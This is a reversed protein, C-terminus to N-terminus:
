PYTKKVKRYIKSVQGSSEYPPLKPNRTYLGSVTGTSTYKGAKIAADSFRQGHKLNWPRGSTKMWIRQTPRYGIYQLFDQLTLVRVGQERAEAVMAKRAAAIKEIIVNDISAGATKSASADPIDGVVLFKTNVSIGDGTRNGNDDVENDIIAQNQALLEHLRDRDSFGDHDLDILGVLSIALKGGASWAPSYIPDGASIPRGIDENIISAVSLNEDLIETVEIAGKVEETGRAMGRNKKLYVSFRTQPTLGAGHGINIWVLNNDYDTRIIKGDPKEFSLDELEALRDQLQNITNTMTRRSSEWEQEKREAVERYQDFESQLIRMSEALQDAQKQLNDKEERTRDQYEQLDRQAKTKADSEVQIREQANKENTNMAEITQDLQRQLQDARRKENDLKDKQSTITNTVTTSAQEGAVNEIQSNLKTVVSEVDNDQIGIKTKLADIKRAADERERKASSEKSISAKLQTDTDFKTRYAYFLFGSLVMTSFIFFTLFLKLGSNSEPNAM